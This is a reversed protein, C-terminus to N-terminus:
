SWVSSAVMGLGARFNNVRGRGLCRGTTFGSGLQWVASQVMCRGNVWQVRLHMSGKMGNGSDCLIWIAKKQGPLCLSIYIYICRNKHCHCCKSLTGEHLEPDLLVTTLARARRTFVIPPRATEIGSREAKGHSRQDLWVMVHHDQLQARPGQVGRQIM